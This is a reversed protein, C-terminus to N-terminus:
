KKIVATLFASAAQYDTPIGIDLFEGSQPFGYLEQGIYSPFIERELSVANGVPIASLIAEELLYVGANILGEGCYDGKEVFSVIKNDPAIKVSGYRGIDSVHALSLSGTAKAHLHYDAFKNLNLSFYSDGNLVLLPYTPFLTMAQKIAGATGLPSTETSYILQMGRYNEGLASCVQEAMYGTCLVVNTIGSTTLQDLLYTIFPKGNVTALVKPRDAVVSRLRTGMGGALIAATIGALNGM